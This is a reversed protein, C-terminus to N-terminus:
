DCEPPTQVVESEFELHAAQANDKGKGFGIINCQLVRFEIDRSDPLKSLWFEVDVCVREVGRARLSRFYLGVHALRNESKMKAAQLKALDLAQAATVVYLDGPVYGRYGRHESVNAMHGVTIVLACYYFQEVLAKLHRFLAIINHSICITWGTDCFHYLDPM